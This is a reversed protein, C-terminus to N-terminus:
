PRIEPEKEFEITLQKSDTTDIKARSCKYLGREVPLGHESIWAELDTDIARTQYPWSWQGEKKRFTTFRTWTNSYWEKFWPKSKAKESDLKFSRFVIAVRNTGDPPKPIKLKATHANNWGSSEEFRQYIGLFRSEDFFYISTLGLHFVQHGDKKSALTYQDDTREIGFYVSAEGSYYTCPSLDDWQPPWTQPPKIEIERITDSIRARVEPDKEHGSSELLLPLAPRGKAILKQMGDQRIEFSENSLKKIFVQIASSDQEQNPIEPQANATCKLCLGMFLACGYLFWSRITMRFLM